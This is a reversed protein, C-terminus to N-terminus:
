RTPRRTTPVSCSSASRRSARRAAAARARPPARLREAPGGRPDDRHGQEVHRVALRGPHVADPRRRGERSRLDLRLLLAPQPVARRGELGERQGGRLCPRAPDHAGEALRGRLRRGELRRDAPRHRGSRLHRRGRPHGADRGRDRRDGQHRQRGRHLDRLVARLRGQRRPQRGAGQAIAAPDAKTGWEFDLAVVEAGWKRTLKVWREGFNGVSAVIVKDGPNVVNVVAAEMAGTGSAAFILVDNSTQYVYKLGEVCENFIEVFRPARHHVIPEAGALLVEPPVPTPGPTILFRKLM